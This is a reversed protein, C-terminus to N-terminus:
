SSLQHHHPRDEQSIGELFGGWVELVFHTGFGDLLETSSVQPRVLRRVARETQESLAFSIYLSSFMDFM